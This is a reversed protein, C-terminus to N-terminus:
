AGKRFYATMGDGTIAHPLKREALFEHVAITCGDWGYYDDFIILGGESVLDYLEDLCTRVSSHWDCDIRLLAVPGIRERAVPLSEDFWGKVIEVYPGLGLREASLRVDNV